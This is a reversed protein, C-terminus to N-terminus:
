FFSWVSVTIADCLHGHIYESSYFTCPQFQKTWQVSSFLNASTPRQVACHERHIIASNVIIAIFKYANKNVHQVNLFIFDLQAVLKM